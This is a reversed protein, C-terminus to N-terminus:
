YATTSFKIVTIKMITKEQKSLNSKYKHKANLNSIIKKFVTIRIHAKGINSKISNQVIILRKAIIVHLTRNSVVFKM